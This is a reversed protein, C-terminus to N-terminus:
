TTGVSGRRTTKPSAGHWRRHARAFATSDSYGLELAVETVSVREDLLRESALERRVTDVLSRYSVREEDLRRRLTRLSVGLTRAVEAMPPEGDTVRRQLQTRVREAWAPPRAAALALPGALGTFHEHMARNALRPVADFMDREWEIIDAGADATVACGFHNSLARQRAVSTEHGLTVRKLRAGAGFVQRACLIFHGLTAETSMHQGPCRSPARLWSVAFAHKRVQMQWGGSDTLIPFLTAVTNMVTACDPATLLAFGFVGLQELTIHRTVAIPLHPSAQSAAAQWLDFLRTAPLRVGDDVAADAGVVRWLADREAGEVVAIDIIRRLAGAQVTSNASRSNPGPLNM